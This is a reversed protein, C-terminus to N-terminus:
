TFSVFSSLVVFYICLCVTNDLHVCRRYINIVLNVRWIEDLWLIGSLEMLIKLPVLLKASIGNITFQSNFWYYKVTHYHHIWSFHNVLTVFLCVVTMGSASWVSHPSKTRTSCFLPLSTLLPRISIYSTPPTPRYSTSATPLYSPLPYINEIRAVTTV